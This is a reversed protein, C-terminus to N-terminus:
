QYYYRENNANQKQMYVVMDAEPKTLDPHCLYTRLQEM